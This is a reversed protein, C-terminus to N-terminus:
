PNRVSTDFGAIAERLVNEVKLLHSSMAEFAKREDQQRIADYIDTHERLLRRAEAREGYFWLRRSERMSDHLRESLSEMMPILLSNHTAAALKLHFRVDAEEGKAEDHLSAEMLALEEGISRLDDETRNRAAMSACGTELIIRVELLERISQANAFLSQSEAPEEKSEASVYTGGGQRIEVLGIAKLASLAERITSRGVGFGAALDVVSSLKTGPAFEGSSIRAKLQEMVLESSKPPKVPNFTM